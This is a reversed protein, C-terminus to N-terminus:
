AADVVLRHGASRVRAAARSRRRKWRDDDDKDTLWGIVAAVQIVYWLAQRGPSEGWVSVALQILYAAPMFPHLERKVTVMWAPGRGLTRVFSGFVWLFGVLIYLASWLEVILGM